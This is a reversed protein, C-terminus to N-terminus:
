PSSVPELGTPTVSHFLERSFRPSNQNQPLNNGEYFAARLTIFRDAWPKLRFDVIRQTDLNYIVDSFLSRVMQQRDTDNSIDWLHNIQEIAQWCTSLELAVKETETSRAEWEIIERENTEKRKLYEERSLDGDAYLHRAAEIRRYCKTIAQRKASELDLGTAMAEARVSQISLETMHHIAEQRITLLQLLRRFDGEYRDKKVSRNRSGCKVGAKHRYRGKHDGGKGGLRSRLQPDDHKKAVQECHDCYTIGNLPYPYSDHRIGSQPTHPISREARVQGVQRLLDVDFVARETILEVDEIPYDHPHRERARKQFVYGGYEAWNAIVRRVDDGEMLTPQKQRNRWPYGEQQLQMAIADTGMLNPAYLRLIREATEAYGRWIADPHPPADDASGAQFTGDPLYWAGEDTLMLFGDENRVTGFPPLGMSKGQRKRHAIMDTTRQSIDIAYWEDMLASFQAVMRGQPTSFDLQKNPAAIVLDVGNEDTFDLLDGIRWGKRHLRSLDNAVLAVVDPDGLRAKLALWAPRNKETTASKHGDTDQYWEPIWGRQDCILQINARQRDPSNHDSEDRTWSLRIYCLAINRQPHKTHRPSM